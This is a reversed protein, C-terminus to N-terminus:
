ACWNNQLLINYFVESPESYIKTKDKSEIV